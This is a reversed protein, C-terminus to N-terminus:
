VAVTFPKKCVQCEQCPGLPAPLAYHSIYRMFIQMCDSKPSIPWRVACFVCMRLIKRNDARARACTQWFLGSDALLANPAASADFDAALGFHLWVCAWKRISHNGHMNLPWAVCGYRYHACVFCVMLLKWSSWLYKLRKEGMEDFLVRFDHATRCCACVCSNLRLSAAVCVSCLSYLKASLLSLRNTNKGRTWTRKPQGISTCACSMCMWHADPWFSGCAVCFVYRCKQSGSEKLETRMM